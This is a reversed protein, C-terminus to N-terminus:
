ASSRSPPIPARARDAAFIADIMPPLVRDHALYERAVEYAAARHKAADSAVRTLADITQDMTDFAILGVGSPVFRSWATDQV